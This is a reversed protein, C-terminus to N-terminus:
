RCAQAARPHNRQNTRAAPCRGRTHGTGPGPRAGFFVDSDDTPRGAIVARATVRYGGQPLKPWELSAFGDEDTRLTKTLGTQPGFTRGEMGAIPTLSLAVEIKGQAQYDPGLARVEARATQGRRVENEAMEIRLLRLSPDRILWRIAQDLFRQYTAGRALSDAKKDNKAAFANPQVFSWKWTSDAQLSLTRGKGLEAVSLVPMPSGDRDKLTPHALLVTAQARAKHVLNLGDLATQQEWLRANEKVDLHLATVVHNKGAPTLKPVFSTADILRSPPLDDPLLVVPLIQGVESGYYGGSTFSLDGGVMAVAGGSEVFPVIAPQLFQSCYASYNFNQLILVDFTRLQDQFLEQCPFPILSTEESSVFEIDSPSRLIFFAVLDINPDNKLAARLFRADWNPRGAVHVVRIKERVVKLVFARRNNEAIAEGPQLPVTLEYLYKGVRDPTFPFVVRYDRQGPQIEVDVTLIPEGDRRLTVPVHRGEWGAAKAGFVQLHAEVEIGTRAFAFQDALVRSFAIDRLGPKGIAVTHVPADLARLFEQTDADLSLGAKDAKDTKGVNDTKGPSLRGNDLGDSLLLVGALDRGEYRQRVAALAERIRTSDARPQSLDVQTVGDWTSAQLRDGFSFFEIRHEKQWEEFVDANQRLMSAAAEARTKGSGNESLRMSESEDVLVAIHNPMKSVSRLRLTPEFFLVLTCLLGVARLFLLLRRRGPLERALVRTALFLMVACLSLAVLRGSLSRPALLLLKWDNWSGGLLNM